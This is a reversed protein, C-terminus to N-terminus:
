LRLLFLSLDPVAMLLITILVMVIVFPLAGIFIDSLTVFDKPLVGKM